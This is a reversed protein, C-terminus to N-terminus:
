HSLIAQRFLMLRAIGRGYSGMSNDVGSSQSNMGYQGGLPLPAAAMLPASYMAPTHMHMFMLAGQGRMQSGGNMDGQPYSAFSRQTTITLFGILFFIFHM